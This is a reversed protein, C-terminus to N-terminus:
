PEGGDQPMREDHFVGVVQPVLTPPPAVAAGEGAGARFAQALPCENGAKGQPGQGLIPRIGYGFIGTLTLYCILGRGFELFELLIRPRPPSAGSADGRRSRREGPGLEFSLGLGFGFRLCRRPGM